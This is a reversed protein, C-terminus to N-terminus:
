EPQKKYIDRRRITDPLGINATPPTLTSHNNNEDHVPTLNFMPKSRSFVTYTKGKQVAEYVTKPEKLLQTMTIPEYLM